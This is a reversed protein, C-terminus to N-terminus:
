LTFSALLGWRDDCTPLSASDCRVAQLAEVFSSDYLTKASRFVRQLSRWSVRKVDAVLSVIVRKGAWSYRGVGAHGIYIHVKLSAVEQRQLTMCRGSANTSVRVNTNVPAPSHVLCSLSSARNSRSVTWSRECAEDIESCVQRIGSRM